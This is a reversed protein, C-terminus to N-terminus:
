VRALVDILEDVRMDILLDIAFVAEDWDETVVVVAYSSPNVLEFSILVSAVVVGVLADIGVGVMVVTLVNIIVDTWVEILLVEVGRIVGAVDWTEVLMDIHQPVNELIITWVLITSIM